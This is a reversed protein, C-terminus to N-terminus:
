LVCIFIIRVTLASGACTRGTGFTLDQFVGVMLVRAQADLSWM